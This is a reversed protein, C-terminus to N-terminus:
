AAVHTEVGITQRMVPRSWDLSTSRVIGVVTTDGVYRVFNGPVIIGTEPM